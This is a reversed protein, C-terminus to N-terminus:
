SDSDSRVGSDDRRENAEQMMIERTEPCIGEIAELLWLGVSRVGSNRAHQYPDPDFSDHMASTHALIQFAVHRGRPGAKMLWRVSVEWQDQAKRGQEAQKAAPDDDLDVYPDFGGM